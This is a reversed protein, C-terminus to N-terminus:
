PTAKSLASQLLKFGVLGLLAGSIKDIYYATKAFSRRVQDQTLVLVIMTDWIFVLATMWLGLAVKIGNGVESTLVVSFLSLYFIINKPNAIGSIFGASFERWFVRSDNTVEPQSSNLLASYGSRPARIAQIAIFILFLGGILKLVIMAILSAALVAGVGVICLAIYLGNALAIGGAVGIANIKGTRLSSRVIMLFDPGPSILALFHAVVVTALLSLIQASM